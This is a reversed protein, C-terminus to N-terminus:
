PCAVLKGDNTLCGVPLMAESRTTTTSPGNITWVSAIGMGKHQATVIRVAEQEAAKRDLTDDIFQLWTIVEGNNFRMKGYIAHKM